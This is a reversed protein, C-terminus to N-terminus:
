KGYICILLHSIDGMTKTLDSSFLCLATIESIVYCNLQKNDDCELSLTFSHICAHANYLSEVFQETQHPFERQLVQQLDKPPAVMILVTTKRTSVPSKVQGVSDAQTDPKKQGEKIAAEEINREELGNPPGTTGNECATVGLFWRSLSSWLEKLMKM